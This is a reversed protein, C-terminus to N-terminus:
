GELRRAIGALVDNGAQYGLLENLRKFDDLNLVHISVANDHTAGDTYQALQEKVLRQNALGTLEDINAAKYLAEEHAKTDSIDSQIAIFGANGNDSDPLPNCSIHVWYRSGDRRYNLVEEEFGRKQQLAKTIRAITAPNTQPGQLLEGPTKGLAEDLTYGSLRTFGENVWEIRGQADTIVM